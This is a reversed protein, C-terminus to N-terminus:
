EIVLNSGSGNEVWYFEIDGIGPTGSFDSRAHFHRKSERLANLRDILIAIDQDSLGIELGFWGTTFHELKAQM